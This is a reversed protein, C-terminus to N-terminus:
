KKKSPAKLSALTNGTKNTDVLKRPPPVYGESLFKFAGVTRSLHVFVTHWQKYLNKQDAVPITRLHSVNVAQRMLDQAKDAGCYFIKQDIRDALGRFGRNIQSKAELFHAEDEVTIEATSSAKLFFGRLGIWQELATQSLQGCEIIQPKKMEFKQYGKKTGFLGM